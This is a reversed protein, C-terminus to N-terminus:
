GLSLGPSEKWKCPFGSGGVLCGNPNPSPLETLGPGTNFEYHCRPESLIPPDNPGRLGLVRYMVLLLYLIKNGKEEM